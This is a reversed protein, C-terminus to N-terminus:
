VRLVTAAITLARAMAAPDDWAMDDSRDLAREARKLLFQAADDRTLADVMIATVAHKADHWSMGAVAGEAHLLGAYDQLVATLADTHLLQAPLRVILDLAAAEPDTPCDPVTYATAV